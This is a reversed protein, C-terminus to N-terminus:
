GGNHAFAPCLRAESQRKVTAQERAVCGRLNVRVGPSRCNGTASTYSGDSNIFVLGWSADHCDAVAPFRRKYKALYFDGDYCHSNCVLEWEGPMQESLNVVPSNTSAAARLHRHFRAEAISTPWGLRFWGYLLLLFLLGVILATRRYAISSAPMVALTQCSRRTSALSAQQFM